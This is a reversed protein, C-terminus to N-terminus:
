MPGMLSQRAEKTIPATVSDLVKLVASAFESDTGLMGYTGYSGSHDNVKSIVGARVDLEGAARVDENHFLTEHKVADPSGRQGDFGVRM